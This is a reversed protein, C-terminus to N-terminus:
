KEPKDLAQPKVDIGKEKVYFCNSLGPWVGQNNVISTQIKLKTSMYFCSSQVQEDMTEM